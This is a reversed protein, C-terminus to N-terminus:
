ITSIGLLVRGSTSCNFASPGEHHAPVHCLAVPRAAITVHRDVDRGIVYLSRRITFMLCGLARM